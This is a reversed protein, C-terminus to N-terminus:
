PRSFRVESRDKVALKTEVEEGQTFHMINQQRPYVDMMLQNRVFILRQEEKLVTQGYVWCVDDEFEHGLWQIPFTKAGNGVSFQRDIYDRIHVFSQRSSQQDDLFVKEDRKDNLAFQLDDTFLRMSIQLTDNKVELETISVYFDHKKSAGRFSSSLTIVLLLAIPLYKM